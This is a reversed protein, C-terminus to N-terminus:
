KKIFSVQCPTSSTNVICSSCGKSTDKPDAPVCTGTFSQPSKTNTVPKCNTEKGVLTGAGCAYNQTCNQLKAKDRTIPGTATWTGARLPLRVCEPATPVQALQVPGPLSHGTAQQAAAPVVLTCLAVVASAILDRM